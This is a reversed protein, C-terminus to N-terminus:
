REGGDSTAQAVRRREVDLDYRPCGYPGRHWGFNAHVWGEPCTCAPTETMPEGEAHEGQGAPRPPPPVRVLAPKMANLVAIMQQWNEESLPFAAELSAWDTLSLPIQITRTIGVDLERGVPQAVTEPM